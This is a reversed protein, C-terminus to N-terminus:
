CCKLVSLDVSLPFGFSKSFVREEGCVGPAHLCLRLFALPSQFSVHYSQKVRLSPVSIICRFTPLWAGVLAAWYQQRAFVEIVARRFGSIACLVFLVSTGVLHM